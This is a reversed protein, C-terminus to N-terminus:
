PRWPQLEYGEFPKGCFIQFEFNLSSSDYAGMAMREWIYKSVGGIGHLDVDGVVAFFKYGGRTRDRVLAASGLIMPLSDWRTMMLELPVSIFPVISANLYRRQDEVPYQKHQYATRSVFHGPVPDGAGQRVLQGEANYLLGTYGRVKQEELKGEANQDFPHYATPSGNIVRHAGSEWVIREDEYREMLSGHAKCPYKPWVQQKQGKTPLQDPNISPRLSVRNVLAARAKPAIGLQAAKEQNRLEATITKDEVPLFDSVLSHNKHHFRQPKRREKSSLGFPDGDDEM